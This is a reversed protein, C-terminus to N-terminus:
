GSAILIQAFKASPNVPRFTAALAFFLSSSRRALDSTFAASALAACSLRSASRSARAVNTQGRRALELRIALVHQGVGSELLDNASYAPVGEAVVAASLDRDVVLLMRFKGLAFLVGGHAGLGLGSQAHGRAVCARAVILQGLGLISADDGTEGPVSYASVALCSSSCM